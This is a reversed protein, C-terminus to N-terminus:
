RLSRRNSLAHKTEDDRVRVLHYTKTGRRVLLFREHRLFRELARERPDTVRDDFIRIAGQSCMGRAQAKSVAIGANALLDALSMTTFMARDLETSTTSAAIQELEIETLEASSGGFLLETMHEAENLAEAGHVILTVERALERQARRREPQAATPAALADIRTLSLFTFARLLRFVDAEATNLFFQYLAFPPTLEPDLWVTGTETKGFKTGDSKTLLPLTLGYLRINETRRALEVGATINGYQDSGGIQLTCGHRRHLELFDIAQLIMYSFETFSLGADSAQAEEGATAPLRSRVSEKGLMAGVRFHKGFDRLLVIASLEGLWEINDVIITEAEVGLINEIQRRVKVARAAVVQPDELTREGAKGSPDGILGTAGGVLAIARHGAEQFRRLAILQLLNGLHLSEATPDFGCYLTRPEGALHTALGNEDTCDHLLGRAQM